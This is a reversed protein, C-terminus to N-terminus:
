LVDKNEFYAYGIFVSAIGIVGAIVLGSYPSLGENDLFSSRLLMTYSGPLWASTYFASVVYVACITAFSIVPTIIFSLVMQLLGLAFTVFFPVVLSSLILDDLFAYKFNNSMLLMSARGDYDFSLTGELILVSMATSVLILVFYVITAVFCWFCKSIWWGMRSKSNILVQKGHERLDQEPYYAIIYHFGIQVCFWLLPLSFDNEVSFVYPSMGRMNSFLYDWFSVTDCAMGNVELETLIDHVRFSGVVVVVIIFIYRYWKKLLGLNLDRKLMRFGKM